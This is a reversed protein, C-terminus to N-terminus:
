NINTYKQLFSFQFIFSDILNVPLEKWFLKYFKSLEIGVM